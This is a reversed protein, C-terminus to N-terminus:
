YQHAYYFFIETGRRGSIKWKENFISFTNSAPLYYILYSTLIQCFFFFFASADQSGDDLIVVECIRWLSGRGGWQRAQRENKASALVVLLNPKLPRVALAVASSITHRWINQEVEKIRLATDPNKERTLLTWRPQQPVDAGRCTDM